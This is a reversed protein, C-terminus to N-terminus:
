RILGGGRLIYSDTLHHHPRSTAMVSSFVIIVFQRDVIKPLDEGSLLMGAVLSSAVVLM